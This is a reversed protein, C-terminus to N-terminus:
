PKKEPERRYPKKDKYLALQEELEKKDPDVSVSIARQGFEVAKAFNGTEAYAAALASVAEASQWQSLQCAKMASSVAQNGNRYKADPCAAQMMALVAIQHPDNPALEMARRHDALAKDYQGLEEFLLGRYEIAEVNKPDLRLSENFDALGEDIKDRMIRLFGRTCHLKSSKLGLGIATEYDALAKDWEFSNQLLAARGAFAAADQKNKEIRQNFHEMANEFVVVKAADIWGPKGENAPKVWLWKDKVQEVNLSDGVAVDAVKGTPLRLEADQVVIVLDGKEIAGAGGAMGLMFLPLLALILARTM